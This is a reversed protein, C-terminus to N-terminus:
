KPDEEVVAIGGHIIVRRGNIIFDTEDTAESMDIKGAWMKIIKGNYDYLTVSRNLGGAWNSEIGKTFRKVSGVYEFSKLLSLGLLVGMTIILFHKIFNDNKM